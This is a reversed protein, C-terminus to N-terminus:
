KLAVMTAMPRPQNPSVLALRRWDNASCLVLASLSVGLKGLDRKLCPVGGGLWDLAAQLARSAGSSCALARRNRCWKGLMNM